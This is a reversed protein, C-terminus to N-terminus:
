FGNNDIVEVSSPIVVSELTGTEYFAYQGIEKVGQPITVGTIESGAFAKGAIAKVSDPIVPTKSEGKYALLQNQWVFFDSANDDYLWDNYLESLFGAFSDGYMMSGFAGGHVFTNDGKFTVSSLNTCGSFAGREIDTVSAPIEIKLLEM